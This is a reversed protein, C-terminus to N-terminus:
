QLLCRGGRQAALVAVIAEDRQKFNINPQVSNWRDLEAVISGSRGRRRQRLDVVKATAWRYINGFLDFRRIPQPRNGESRSQDIRRATKLSLKSAATVTETEPAKASSVSQCAPQRLIM